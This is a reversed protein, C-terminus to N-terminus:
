WLNNADKKRVVVPPKDKKLKAIEAEYVGKIAEMAEKGYRLFWAAEYLREPNELEKYFQSNGTKDDEELIYALVTNKEDDELEIGHLESSKVAVNIMTDTFVKQKDEKEQATKLVEQEKYDDELQKYDTRLKLM